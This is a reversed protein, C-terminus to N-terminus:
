PYWMQAGPSSVLLAVCRGGRFLTLGFFTVGWFLTEVIAIFLVLIREGQGVAEAQLADGGSSAAPSNLLFFFTIFPAYNARTTEM